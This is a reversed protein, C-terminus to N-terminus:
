PYLQHRLSKRECHNGESEDLPANPCAPPRTLPARPTRPPAFGQSPRRSASWSNPFRLSDWRLTRGARFLKRLWPRGNEKRTRHQSVTPRAEMRMEKRQGQIANCSPTRGIPPAAIESVTQDMETNGCLRGVQWSRATVRVRSKTGGEEVGTQARVGAQSGTTKGRRSGM